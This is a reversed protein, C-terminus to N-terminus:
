AEQATEPGRLPDTLAGHLQGLAVQLRLERTTVPPAWLWAEAQQERVLSLAPEQRWAWEGADLGPPLADLLSDLDISV